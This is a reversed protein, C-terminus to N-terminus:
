GASPLGYRAQVVRAKGSRKPAEIVFLKDFESELVPPITPGGLATVILPITNTHSVVLVTSQTPLLRIRTVLEQVYAEVNAPDVTLVVPTLSLQDALPQATQVSRRFQTTFIASVRATGVAGALDRARAEGAPTLPPDNAPTSAREAHRLLIVTIPCRSSVPVPSM